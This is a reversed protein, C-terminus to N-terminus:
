WGTGICRTSHAGIKYGAPATNPATNFGLRDATSRSMRVFCYDTRKPCPQSKNTHLWNICCAQRPMVSWFPQGATVEAHLSGVGSEQKATITATSRYCPTSSDEYRRGATEENAAPQSMLGLMLLRAALRKLLSVGRSALLYDSVSM